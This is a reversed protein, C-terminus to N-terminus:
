KALNKTHIKHSRNRPQQFATFCQGFIHHMKRNMEFQMELSPTSKLDEEMVDDGTSSSFSEASLNSLEKVYIEEVCTIAFNHM